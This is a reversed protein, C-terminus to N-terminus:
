KIRMFTPLWLIDKRWQEDLPVFSSGLRVLDRDKIEGTQDDTYDHVSIIDGVRMYLSFTELERPKNGGDCFIYVPGNTNMIAEAIRNINRPAFYDELILQCRPNQAAFNKIKPNVISSEIEFGMYNFQDDLVLNPIVHMLSGGMYIGLEIFLKVHYRNIIDIHSCIQGYNQAALIDCINMNYDFEYLEMDKRHKTIVAGNSLM